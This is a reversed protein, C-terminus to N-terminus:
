EKEQVKGSDELSRIAKKYVDAQKQFERLQDLATNFNRRIENSYREQEEIDEEINKLKEQLAELPSM